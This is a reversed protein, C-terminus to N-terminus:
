GARPFHSGAGCRLVDTVQSVSRPTSTVQKNQASGADSTLETDAELIDLDLDTAKIIGNDGPIAM